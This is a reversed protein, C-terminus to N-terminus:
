FRSQALHSSALLQAAPSGEGYEFCARRGFALISNQLRDRYRPLASQSWDGKWKAPTAQGGKTCLDLYYDPEYMFMALYHCVYFGCDESNMPQTLVPPYQVHIKQIAGRNYSVEGLMAEILQQFHGQDSENYPDTGGLPDFIIVTTRIDRRDQVLDQGEAIIALRWHDKDYLPLVVFRFRLPTDIYFPGPHFRKGNIWECWVDSHMFFFEPDRQRPTEYYVCAHYFIEFNVIGSSLHRDVASGNLDVGMLRFMDTTRVVAHHRSCYTQLVAVTNDNYFRRANTDMPRTLPGLAHRLEKNTSAPLEETEFPFDTSSNTAM